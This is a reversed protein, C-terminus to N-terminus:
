ARGHAALRVKLHGWMRRGVPLKERFGRLVLATNEDADREIREVCRLNVIATRRVRVFIEAPLMKEWAQMTQRICWREGDILLVESYNEASVVAVIQDIGVFRGGAASGRLFITDRAGFHKSAERSPPPLRHLRRLASALRVATVPKVIYDLANVEFARLAHADHATVFIIAADARVFPVLDFGTAGVLQVDLFAVDYDARALAARAERWTGAEGTVVVDPMRALHHRLLERALADDDIVLARTVPHGSTPAKQRISTSM